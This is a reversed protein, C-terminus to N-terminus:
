VLGEPYRRYYWDVPHGYLPGPYDKDGFLHGYVMRFVKAGNKPTPKLKVLHAKAQAAAVAKARPPSVWIEKNVKKIKPMGSKSYKGTYADVKITKTRPKEPKYPGPPIQVLDRMLRILKKGRLTIKRDPKRFSPGTELRFVPKGNGGGSSANIELWGSSSLTSHGAPSSWQSVLLDEIQKDTAGENRLVLWGIDAGWYNHAAKLLQFAVWPDTPDRLPPIWVQGSPTDVYTSGDALPKKKSTRRAPRKKTAKKKTTATKKTAKKKTAKKKTAKKRARKKTVKRKAKRKKRPAKPQPPLDWFAM